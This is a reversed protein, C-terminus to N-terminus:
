FRKCQFYHYKGEKDRYWNLNRRRIDFHFGAWPKGAYEWYPYFGLAGVQWMTNIIWSSFHEQSRAKDAFVILKDNDTVVTKSDDKIEALIVNEFSDEKLLERRTKIRVEKIGEIRVDVAFGNRHCFSGEPDIGRNIYIKAGVSKRVMFLSWILRFDMDYPEGWREEVKFYPWVTEWLEPTMVIKSDIMSHGKKVSSM